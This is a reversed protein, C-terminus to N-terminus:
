LVKSPKSRFIRLGTIHRLYLRDRFARWVAPNAQHVCLELDADFKMAPSGEVTSPVSEYELYLLDLPQSTWSWCQSDAGFHIGFYWVSPPVNAKWNKSSSNIRFSLSSVLTVSRNKCSVIKKLWLWKQYNAFPIKFPWVTSKLQLAWLLERRDMQKMTSLNDMNHKPWIRGIFWKNTVSM